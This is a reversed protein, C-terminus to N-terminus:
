RNVYSIVSFTIGGILLTVSVGWVFGITWIMALKDLFEVMETEDELEIDM